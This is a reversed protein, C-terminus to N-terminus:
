KRLESNHNLMWTYTSTLGDELSISPTWGLSRIRGSDLLKRPVGDPMSSDWRVEGEFGVVRSVVEALQAITVDQGFGVNLPLSEDYHQLAFVIGRAADMSHLFERRVKGSGWLTVTEASSEKAEHFKRLLAPVVHSSTLSFNDRPGYLNSPLISIWSHGFQARASSVMEIGSLKAMAYGTNTPELSGTMLAEEPIPQPALRPYICSSGLFALRPVGVDHAASIFNWEMRINEMLFDFPESQNAGIGGVRAAAMIAVDPSIERFYASTANHDSVDLDGHSPHFVQASSEKLIEVIAGGVLGSGGAVLIRKGNLEYKATM